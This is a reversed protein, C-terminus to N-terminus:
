ERGGSERRLKSWESEEKLSFPNPMHFGHFDRLYNFFARLYELDRQIALRNKRAVRCAEVFCDVDIRSFDEPDTKSPFYGFFRYLALDIAKLNQSASPSYRLLDGEYKGMWAEINRHPKMSLLSPAKKKKRPAKKISTITAESNM